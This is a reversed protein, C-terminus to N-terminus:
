EEVSSLDAVSVWTGILEGQVEAELGVMEALDESGTLSFTIGEVTAEFGDRTEEVMAVTDITVVGDQAQLHIAGLTLGRVYITGGEIGGDLAVEAELFPSLDIGSVLGYTRVGDNIVVRGDPDQRVTGTLESGIGSAHVITRGAFLGLVLAASVVSLGLTIRTSRLPSRSM